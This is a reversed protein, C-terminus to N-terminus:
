QFSKLYNNKLETFCRYYENLAVKNPANAELLAPNRKSTEFMFPGKYGTKLLEKIIETWNNSGTGPLWHKEDLGDYDSMHVTTILNGAKAVFEEPKEKLLHNSDFCIGLGNGVSKIIELMEGSTNGLCTRPLCEIVLQADQKRVETTLIKLSEICNGMRAERDEERVPELSPHIVYKKPNLPKFLAMLRSCERIMTERNGSNTTSIDYVKSYPLHVSWITIGAKDTRKKFEKVWAACTDDSKNNFVGSGLEIFDIGNSKLEDFEKQMTFSGGTSVGVKWKGILKISKNKLTKDMVRAQGYGSLVFLLTVFSYLLIKKM